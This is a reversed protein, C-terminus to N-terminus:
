TNGSKKLIAANVDQMNTTSNGSLGFLYSAPIGNWAPIATPSTPWAGPITTPPINASPMSGYGYTSTMSQLQQELSALRQMIYRHEDVLSRLPGKDRWDQSSESDVITTVMLLNRFARKVSPNDSSMATDFLDVFKELDFDESDESM